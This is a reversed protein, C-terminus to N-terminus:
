VMYATFERDRSDATGNNSTLEISPGASKVAHNLQLLSAAAARPDALKRVVGASHSAPRRRSVHSETRVGEGVKFFAIAQQLVQGQRSLQEATSSMEESAASNQQIVQDLQQIASNVQAAGSSQEASAAAIERVLEATRQIDPVLRSLFQGATEATNVGDSTLRSIDAASNQRREALKRVESAVV